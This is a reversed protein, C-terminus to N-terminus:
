CVPLEIKIQTGEGTESKITLTGGHKEIVEEVLALGIGFNRNADKTSFFPHCINETVDGPIGCGNDKVLMSVCNNRRDFETKIFLNLKSNESNKADCANDLINMCSLELGSAFGEIEPLDKDLELTLSGVSAALKEFMLNLSGEVIENLNLKHPTVTYKGAIGALADLIKVARDGDEKLENLKEPIDNKLQSYTLGEIEFDGNEVTYRELVILAKQWIDLLQGGHDKIRKVPPRIGRAVCALFYGLSTAKDIQLRKERLLESNDSVPYVLSTYGAINGDLDMIQFNAWRFTKDTDLCNKKMNWLLFTENTDDRTLSNLKDKLSSENGVDFINVAAKNLDAVTLDKSWTICALPESTSYLALSQKAGLLQNEVLRRGATEEELRAKCKKVETELKKELRKLDISRKVLAKAKLEYINFPKRIFSHVGADYFKTLDKEVEYGTFIIIFYPDDPKPKLEDIFEFGDMVPMMLDLLILEPTLEELKDLADKGNEAFYPDYGDRELIEGVCERVRQDDEIILIKTKADM